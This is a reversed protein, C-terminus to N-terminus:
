RGEEDGPLFRVRRRDRTAKLGTSFDPEGVMRDMDEVARVYAVELDAWADLYIQRKMVKLSSPSSHWALNRAFEHV